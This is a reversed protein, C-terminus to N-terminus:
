VMTMTDSTPRTVLVEGPWISNKAALRKVPSGTAPQSTRTSTACCGTASPSSTPRRRTRRRAAARCGISSTTPTACSRRDSPRWRDRSTTAALLRRALQDAVDVGVLRDVPGAVGDVDLRHQAPALVIRQRREIPRLHLQDGAVVVVLHDEALRHLDVGEARHEALTGPAPWRRARCSRAARDLAAVRLRDAANSTCSYRLGSNSTM